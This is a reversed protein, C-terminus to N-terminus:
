GITITLGDTDGTVTADAGRAEITLSRGGLRLDDVVIRQDAELIPRLRLEDRHLAPQLGLLSTVVQYPVAAAWAQPRGSAPYPVPEPFHDRSFGGLLEPLQYHEAAALDILASALRRAHHDLGRRALGQLIMANDHPWVSGIHYGLPNYAAESEALTRIGWGSFEDGSMLRDALREALDDDILETALLRGANSARVGIPTGDADLAMAILATNDALVFHQLFREAFAAAERRLSAEAGLNGAAAEVEALGLLAQHVYGQVEVPSYAGVVVTGDPRVISDGSDKWSQNGLGTQHPVSQLFGLEDTHARCWVMATRAAPLLRQIRDLPAGWHLAEALTVVFLPTSDISGYYATGPELGFVGMDGIRLEHLIGGPAELTLDHRTRGQYAALLDLTDLSREPNAIMALRSANLTDRGFVALFHPAGAAVFPRATNPDIVTLAELDWAAHELAPQLRPDSGRVSTAARPVPMTVSLDIGWTFAAREGPDVALEATVTNATVEAGEAWLTAEALTDGTQTRDEDDLHYVTANGPVLRIEIQLSVPERFGQVSIAERYGTDLSRERVIIAQPDPAENWYSYTLRDSSAATRIGSLQAPPSGDVLLRMESVIRRDRRYLGGADQGTITGDSSTVLALGARTLSLGHEPFPAPM